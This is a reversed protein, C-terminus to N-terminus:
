VRNFYILFFFNFLIKPLDIKSGDAYETAGDALFSTYADRMVNVGEGVLAPAFVALVNTFLIFVIGALLRGRYKWFLPALTRLAKM